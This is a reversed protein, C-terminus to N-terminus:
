FMVKSMNDIEQCVAEYVGPYTSMPGGQSTCPIYYLTGFERCAEEVREKVVEQTWGEYDVTASDIGGMFSIQGGYQKILESINNSRMVGQWIDVGMDIMDPVLTAAYSDSHHVIIEVGHSKYYGYVKKYSDLFFEDFMEPSLFTSVQSGWDDHHFLADPKMHKCMERAYALEWETIYDILEHMCEPEEYFAILCNQIEMLYHCQEFIGPAVYGTVFQDNRDVAEAQKVFPAWDEDSFVVNPAHVYEKWRTIDKCVITEENHVPFPGPTGIPYSRTVGWANVINHEGLKPAPNTLTFPTVMQLAFAEYQNVFRDPHGGHITELLNERKTLM